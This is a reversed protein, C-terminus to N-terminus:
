PALYRVTVSYGPLPGLQGTFGLRLCASGPVAETLGWTLVIYCDFASSMEVKFWSWHPCFLWSSYVQAETRGELIWM